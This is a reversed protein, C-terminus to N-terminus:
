EIRGSETKGCKSCQRTTRVNGMLDYRYDPNPIPQWQSFVHVCKFELARIRARYYNRIHKLKAECKKDLMITKLKSDDMDFRRHHFIM